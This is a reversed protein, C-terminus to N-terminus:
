YANNHGKKDAWNAVIAIKAEVAKWFVGDKVLYIPGPESYCCM